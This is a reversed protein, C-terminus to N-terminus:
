LIQIFTSVQEINDDLSSVSSRKEEVEDLFNLLTYCWLSPVYIDETGSGSKKSQKAKNKERRHQNRITQIKLKIAEYDIEPKMKGIEKEIDRLAKDRM